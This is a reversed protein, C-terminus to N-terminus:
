GAHLGRTTRMAVRGDVVRLDHGEVLEVGMQDALFAHEYYASNFIGPTLVAVVPKGSTGGPACAALSRRLDLPYNQVPRM